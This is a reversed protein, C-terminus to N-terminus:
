HTQAKLYAAMLLADARGHDKKRALESSCQPFLELARARSEDKETKLLRHHRKWTVPTVLRYPLDLTAMTAILAGFGCGFTFASVSGEGPRSSVSEIVAIPSDGDRLERFVRAMGAFDPTTRGGVKFVPMDFFKIEGSPLIASIAGTAGPDVGIFTQSM